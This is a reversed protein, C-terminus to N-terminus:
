IVPAYTLAGSPLGFESSDEAALSSAGEGAPALSASSVFVCDVSARRMLRVARRLSTGGGVAGSPRVAFFVLDYGPHWLVGFTAKTMRGCHVMTTCPVDAPVSAALRRVITAACEKAEAELRRPCMGSLAVTAWPRPAASIITLRAQHRRAVDVASQLAMRSTELEDVIVVVRRWGAVHPEGQCDIQM